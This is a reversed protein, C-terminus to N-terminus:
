ADEAEGRNIGHGGLIFFVLAAVVLLTVNFAIALAGGPKNLSKSISIVSIIVGLLPVLSLAAYSAAVMHVEAEHGPRAQRVAFVSGQLFRALTLGYLICSTMAM